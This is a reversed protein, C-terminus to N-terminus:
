GRRPKSLVAVCDVVVTPPVAKPRPVEIVL